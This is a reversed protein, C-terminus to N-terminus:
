DFREFLLLFAKLSKLAIELNAFLPKLSLHCADSVVLLTHGFCDRENILGDRTGSLSLFLLLLFVLLLNLCSELVAHFLELVGLSKLEVSLEFGLSFSLLTLSLEAALLGFLTCLALCSLTLLLELQLHLLFSLLSFSILNSSSHFLLVANLHLFGPLNRLGSSASLCELCLM